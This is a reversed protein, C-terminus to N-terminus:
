DARLGVALKTMGPILPGIEVPALGAAQMQGTLWRDDLSRAEPTFATHQLQWLATNKPGALDADVIFDHVLLRGGPALHRVARALLPEHTHDPIGSMLYSMLIVDQRDPWDAELANGRVYAIRDALGADRVYAEGLEAVNPFDIITARLVPYAQCLTIAFAGTGGGLDLMRRAGSLDVRRALGQAPGLSGAHQSESYLRAEAPDAFWDAYSGTAGEPLRGALAPEIQDMLRYMQRGVQLRLYDGFDYKAGRVLFAEAADSNAYRGDDAVTLGLATLATMLTQCRGAPLGVAVALADNSMPGKSLATFVGFDLAAFLAKSGMYGFAIDSIEEAETLGAM